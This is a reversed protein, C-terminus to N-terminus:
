AEMTRLPEHTKPLPHGGGPQGDAADLLGVLGASEGAEVEGDTVHLSAEGGLVGVGETAAALVREVKRVVEWFGGSRM